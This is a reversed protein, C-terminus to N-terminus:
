AGVLSTRPAQDKEEATSMILSKVWTWSTNFWNGISNLATRGTERRRKDVVKGTIETARQSAFGYELLQQRQGDGATRLGHYVFYLGTATLVAATGTIGLLIASTQSSTADIPLGFWNGNDQGTLPANVNDSPVSDAINDTHTVLLSDPPLPDTINSGISPLAAAQATNTGAGPGFVTLLVAAIALSAILALRWPPPHKNM